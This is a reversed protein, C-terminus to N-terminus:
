LCWGCKKCFLCDKMETKAALSDGVPVVHEISYVSRLYHDRKGHGCIECRWPILMRFRLTIFIFHMFREKIM